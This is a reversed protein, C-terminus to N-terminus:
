GNSREFTFHSFAKSTNRVKRAQTDEATHVFVLQVQLQHVGMIANEM